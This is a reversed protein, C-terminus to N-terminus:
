HFCLVHWNYRPLRRFNPAPFEARTQCLYATDWLDAALYQFIEDQPIWFRHIAIKLSNGYRAPFAIDSWRLPNRPSSGKSFRMPRRWTFTAVAQTRGVIHLLDLFDEGCIKWGKWLSGICSRSGLSPLFVRIAPHIALITSIRIQGADPQVMHPLYTGRQDKFWSTGRRFYQEGMKWAM